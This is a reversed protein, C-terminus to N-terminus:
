SLLSVELRVEGGGAQGGHQRLQVTVLLSQGTHPGAEEGPGVVEGPQVLQGGLLPVDVRLDTLM